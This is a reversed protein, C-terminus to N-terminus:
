RLARRPAQSRPGGVDSTTTAAPPRADDGTVKGLRCAVGGRRPPPPVACLGGECGRLPQPAWSPRSTPRDSPVPRGARPEDPRAPRGQLSCSGGAANKKSPSPVFCPAVARTSACASGTTGTLRVLPRPHYTQAAAPAPKIHPRAGGKEGQPDHAASSASNWKATRPKTVGCWRPQHPQPRPAGRLCGDTSERRDGGVSISTGYMRTTCNMGRPRLPLACVKEVTMTADGGGEFGHTAGAQCPHRVLLSRAAADVAEPVAGPPRTGVGRGVVGGHAASSRGTGGGEGVKHHM